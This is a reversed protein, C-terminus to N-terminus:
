AAPFRLRAVTLDGERGLTFTGALQSAMSRALRQGLGTGAVSGGAAAGLGVGDDSVSLVLAGTQAPDPGFAVRITGAREEPFAYKLANTVAENLVLGVLGARAASLRCPEARFDLVVPRLQCHAARLDDCLGGLFDGAELGDEAAEAGVSLRRYVSGLVHVREAMGELAARTEAREATRAQIAAMAVVANLDNGVRHSLETLLAASGARRAELARAAAEAGRARTALGDTLAVVCLGSLIFALLGLAEAPDTVAFGEGELLVYAILMAGVTLASFGATRGLWATLGALVALMVPFAESPDHPVVAQTAWALGGMVASVGALRLAAPRLRVVVERAPIAAPRPEARSEAAGDSADPVPM